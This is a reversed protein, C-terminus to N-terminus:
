KCVTAETVTWGNLNNTATPTYIGPDGSRIGCIPIYYWGRFSMPCSEPKEIAPSNFWGLNEDPKWDSGGIPAPRPLKKVPLDDLTPLKLQGITPDGTTACSAGRARLKRSPQLNNLSCENEGDAFIDSNSATYQQFMSSDPDADTQGVTPQDLDFGYNGGLSSYSLLDDNDTDSPAFINSSLFDGDDFIGPASLCCQALLLLLVGELVSSM